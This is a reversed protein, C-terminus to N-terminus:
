PSAVQQDALIDADGQELAGVFALAPGSDSLPARLILDPGAAFPAPVRANMRWHDFQCITPEHRNAPWV